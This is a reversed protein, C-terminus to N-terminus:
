MRLTLTLRSEGNEWAEDAGVIRMKAYTGSREDAAYCFDGLRYDRGFSLCGGKPVTFLMEEGCDYAALVEAARIRLAENYQASSEFLDASLDAAKRYVERKAAGNSADLWVVTGDAGEIFVKNKLSASDRVYKGKVLNGYSSSFMAGCDGLPRVVRFVFTGREADLEVRYSAGYPRLVRYVWSALNEWQVSFVGSVEVAASDEGIVLPLGRCNEAVAAQVVQSVTGSASLREELVRDGLLCEATRGEMVTGDATFSVSEVRGCRLIGDQVVCLYEAKRALANLSEQNPFVARFSGFEFFRMQWVVSRVRDIPASLRNLKKDLFYLEM